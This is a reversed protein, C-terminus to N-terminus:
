ESSLRESREEALKKKQGALWAEIQRRMGTDLREDLAKELMTIDAKIRATDPPSLM